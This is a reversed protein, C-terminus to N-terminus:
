DATWKMNVTWKTHEGIKYPTSRSRNDYGLSEILEKDAWKIYDTDGNNLLAELEILQKQTPLLELVDYQLIEWCDWGKAKKLPTRVRGVFEYNVYPFNTSSLVQGKVDILEEYFERWHSIERDECTNFWDIFKVANKAPIFVALDDKKLGNTSLKLDDTAEFQKLIQRTVPLRKYKGGVPQYFNWNSNKVLLYKDNVQIRYVYSMSFRIHKGRIALYWSRFVLGIRKHHKLVDGGLEVVFLIVFLGIGQGLFESKLSPNTYYSIWLFVVAALIQLLYKVM